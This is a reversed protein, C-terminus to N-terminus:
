EGGKCTKYIEYRCDEETCDGDDVVFSKILPCAMQLARRLEAIKKDKAECDPCEGRSIIHTEKEMKDFDDLAEGIDRAIKEGDGGIERVARVSDESDKSYYYQYGTDFDQSWAGYYSSESSSWYWLGSFGGLSKQHLQKYMENLEKKTPLRWGKGLGKIKKQVQNWNAIFEMEPPAVEFQKNGVEIILKKKEKIKRFSENM